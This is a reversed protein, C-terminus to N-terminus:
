KKCTIDTTEHRSANQIIEILLNFSIVANVNVACLYCEPVILKNKYLFVNM